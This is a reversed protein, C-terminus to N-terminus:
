VLEISNKYIPTSSAYEEWQSKTRPALKRTEFYESTDEKDRRSVSAKLHGVFLIRNEELKEVTISDFFEAFIRHFWDQTYWGPVPPATHGNWLGMPMFEVMAFRRTYGAMTRLVERLPFNQSLVLHHTVALAIVLDSRLREPPPSEGFAMEPLMFNLVAGHLSRSHLKDARSRSHHYFRNIASSSYDTCVVKGVQTKEAILLTLLGQNGALEIVSECDLSRIIELIRNFRPTSVISGNQIHESHYDDWPSPPPQNLRTIKRRLLRPNRAVVEAPLRSALAVSLWALREGHRLLNAAKRAWKASWKALRACKKLGLIRLASHQYLWWSLDPMNGNSSAIIRQALFSEGSAWVQLPRWYYRLFDLGKDFGDGRPKKRFGGLDVFMPQLGSFLVNHPGIDKIDWGFQAGIEVVELVALAADRFMDFSWEHPYLVYPITKHEV